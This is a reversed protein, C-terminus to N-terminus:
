AEPDFVTIYEPEYYFLDDARNYYKGRYDSTFVPIQVWYENNIIYSTTIVSDCVWNSDLGAYFYQLRANSM